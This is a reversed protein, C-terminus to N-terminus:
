RTNASAPTVAGRSFVHWTGDAGIALRYWTWRGSKLFEAAVEGPVTAFLGVKQAPTLTAPNLESVHPWVYVANNEHDPGIPLSAPPGALLIGLWALVEAGDGDRSLARWAVFPNADKALGFDPPLENWEIAAALDDLRGSRVASLILDRMDAVAPPLEAIPVVFTAATRAATDPARNAGASAASAWIATATM